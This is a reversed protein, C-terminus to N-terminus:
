GGRSRSGSESAMIARALRLRPPRQGGSGPREHGMCVATTGLFFPQSSFSVGKGALVSQAIRVYTVEDIFIDYSRGLEFFRLYATLACLGVMVVAPFWTLRSEDRARTPDALVPTM